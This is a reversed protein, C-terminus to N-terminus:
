FSVLSYSHAPRRHLLFLFEFSLAFYGGMDHQSSILHLCWLLLILRRSHIYKSFSILSYSMYPNRLLLFEFDFSLAYYGWKDHQSSMLHLCWLLLILRRSHIYKSFSILSYLM